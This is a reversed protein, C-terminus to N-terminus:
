QILGGDAQHVKWSNTSKNKKRDVGLQPRLWSKFFFFFYVKWNWVCWLIETQIVIWVSGTKMWWIAPFAITEKKKGGAVRKVVVLIGNEFKRRKFHNNSCVSIYFFFLIFLVSLAYKSSTPYSFWLSFLFFLFSFGTSRNTFRAVVVTTLHFKTQSWIVTWRFTLRNPRNVVNTSRRLDTNNITHQILRMDITLSTQWQLCILVKIVQRIVLGSARHKFRQCGFSIESERM